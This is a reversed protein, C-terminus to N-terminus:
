KVPVRQKLEEFWNFVFQFQRASTVDAPADESPVVAVFHQGDPMIDTDRGFGPGRGVYVNFPLPDPNTVSFTPHTMVAVVYTAFTNYFFLQKGDRSWQPRAGSSAALHKEGTAPFPEVLVQNAAGTTITYAIWRGDPSFMASILRRSQVRAFPEGKKTTMSFVWLSNTGGKEVTYLFHDGDSSWSEPAHSTGPEPKTLREATGTGDSRQRFIAADGDRDSQFAVYQGDASWIPYHNRGEFTLQRAAASASLDYIWINAGGVEESGFALQKADPSIRPREYVGAPLRLGSPDVKGDRDILALRSAGPIPGAPGSIYVASGTESASFQAMGTAGRGVFTRAVGNLVAAREGTVALQKIDFPVVFLTGGVAYLLQGNALYHPDSGGDILTKREGTRLRLAVIKASDWIDATIAIAEAGGAAARRNAVTFLAVDGGPLLTPGEIVEDASPPVLVQQKGSSASLRVLGSSPDAFVIDDGVWALGLVNNSRTQALSVPAGGTIDIKKIAAGSGGLGSVFGISRGDPSFVPEGIATGLETGPIVAAAPDSMSRLHLRRNAVYVIRSGDPSIAVSRFQPDTIRETEPLVLSFRTVPGSRVTPEGGRAIFTALAVGVLCAAPIIFALWWRPIPRGGSTGPLAAASAQQCEDIEYALIAIHSPRRQPDKQLCRRLLRGINGGSEAPLATWEPERSLVFALTDAVDEGGFARKGTLMEYLVCGFAWIDSRRDAPRGKAQEPSMYAATGLLMGVGTMLAPSTITPSNALEKGPGSPPELAKALGFDLVKVTGDDRVKINAPKLDRHVVGQEHAAELAEVIQKAIPLAEDLPLPGKAIRDALTPGEVLELVLAHASGSDEFGYIAAINPHNLSALVQAERRFRAIRDGDIAFAEPLIKLAVDRNLKTDRARYVEGMGGAGLLATVEYPGLRTGFATAV